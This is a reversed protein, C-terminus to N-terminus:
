LSEEEADMLCSRLRDVEEQYVARGKPTIRYTRKRGDVETEPHAERGSVQGAPHVPHGPGAQGPRPDKTRCIRYDRHRVHGPAPFVDPCLVYTRDSSRPQKRGDSCRRPICYRSDIDDLSITIDGPSITLGTPSIRFYESFSVVKQPVKQPPQGAPLASFFCGWSPGCPYPPSPATM